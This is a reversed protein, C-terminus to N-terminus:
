WKEGTRFGGAVKTHFSVVRGIQYHRRDKLEVGEAALRSLRPIRHDDAAILGEGKLAERVVAAAERAEAHVPSALIAIHGGRAAELHLEVAAERLEFPDKMEIIDGDADLREYGEM